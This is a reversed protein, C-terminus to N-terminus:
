ESELMKSIHEKLDKYFTESNFNSEVFSSNKKFLDLLEENNLIQTKKVAEQIGDESLDNIIFGKDEISDFAAFKSVLPIM